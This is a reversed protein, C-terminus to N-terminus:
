GPNKRPDAFTNRPDHSEGELNLLEEYWALSAPHVQRAGERELKAFVCELIYKAAAELSQAALIRVREVDPYARDASILDAVFVVKELKSMGARGTTHWRVAALVDPDTVGCELALYAEAAFAHWIKPACLDDATLPKQYRVCLQQQAEPAAYKMCDHLMGAMWAKESDVGNRQALQEAAEAVCESHRLRKPPLLAAVLAHADARSQVKLLM